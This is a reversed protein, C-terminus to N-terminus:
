CSKRSVKHKDDYILLFKLYFTHLQLTFALLRGTRRRTAAVRRRQLRGVHQRRRMAVEEGVDAGVQVSEGGGGGAHKAVEKAAFALRIKVSYKLKYKTLQTKQTCYLM